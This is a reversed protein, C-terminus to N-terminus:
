HFGKIHIERSQCRPTNIILLDIFKTVITMTMRDFERKDALESLVSGNKLSSIDIDMAM